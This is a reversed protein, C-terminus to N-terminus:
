YSKLGCAVAVFYIFLPVSFLNAAILKERLLRIAQIRSQGVAVPTLQLRGAAAPISLHDCLLLRFVTQEPEPLGAVQDHMKRLIASRTEVDDVFASASLLQETYVTAAGQEAGPGEKEMKIFTFCINRVTIYLFAKVDTMTNFRDRMGFLKIFTEQVIHHAETNNIILQAAFEVLLDYHEDFLKRVAEYSGRQFDVIDNQHFSSLTM